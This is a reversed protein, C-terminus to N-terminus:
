GAEETYVPFGYRRCYRAGEPTAFRRCYLYERGREGIHHTLAKRLHYKLTFAISPEVQRRLSDPLRYWHDIGITANVYHVTRESPGLVQSRVLATRTRDDYLELNARERAIASWTHAWAPNARLSHRYIALAAEPQGGSAMLAALRHQYDVNDPDLRVALQAAEVKRATVRDADGGDALVAYGAALLQRGSLGALLVMALLLALAALRGSVVVREHGSYAQSVSAHRQNASETVM